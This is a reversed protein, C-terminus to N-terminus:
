QHLFSLYPLSQGISFQVEDYWPKVEKRKYKDNAPVDKFSIRWRAVITLPNIEARNNGGPYVYLFHAGLNNHVTAIANLENM